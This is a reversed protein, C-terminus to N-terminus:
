VTKTVTSLANALATNLTKAGEIIGTLAAANQVPTGSTLLGVATLFATFATMFTTGKILYDAATSGGLAIQTATLTSTLATIDFTTSSTWDTALNSITWTALPTNWQLGVATTALLGYNGLDDVLETFLETEGTPDKVARFLRTGTGTLTNLAPYTTTPVMPLFTSEDIVEGMSTRAMEIGGTLSGRKVIDTSEQAVSGFIGYIETEETDTPLLFRRVSGKRDESAEGYQLVSLTTTLTAAGGSQDLVFTQPGSSLWVKDTLMLRSSRRSLFDWDGPELRVGSITGWGIGGRDEAEEDKTDFAAYSVAHYGLAYPEGNTDFGILLMDGEQPIYRGWAALAGNDTDVTAKPPLSLGVLPSLVTINLDTNEIIANVTGKAVHVDTVRARHISSFFARNMNALQSFIGDRIRLRGM